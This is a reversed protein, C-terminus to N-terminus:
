RIVSSSVASELLLVQMAETDIEAMLNLPIATQYKDHGSPFNKIVPYPADGFYHTFVEELTLSNKLSTKCEKWSGLIVAAPNELLGSAKLQCILRDISYIKERVDELLLIKNETKLQWKTGCLTAILTLNGGVLKGRARGPRLM